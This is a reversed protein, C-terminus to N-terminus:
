QAKFGIPDRSVRVGAAEDAFVAEGLYSAIVVPDQRVADPVGSSIVQGFELVYIIDAL